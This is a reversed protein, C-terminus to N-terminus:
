GINTIKSIKINTIKKLVCFSWIMFKKKDSSKLVESDVKSIINFITYVTFYKLYFFFFTKLTCVFFDFSILDSLKENIILM